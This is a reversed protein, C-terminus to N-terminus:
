APAVVARLGRLTLQARSTPTVRLSLLRVPSQNLLALESQRLTVPGPCPLSVSQLGRRLELVPPEPAESPPGHLRLPLWGAAGPTWPGGSTRSAIGGLEPNANPEFAWSLEGDTVVIVLWVRSTDFTPAPSLPVSVWRTDLGPDTSEVRLPWIASAVGSPRGLVDPHLEVRGEVLATLPRLALDLETVAGRLGTLAQAQATNTDIARGRRLSTVARPMDLLTPRPGPGLATTLTLETLVGDEGLELVRSVAGDTPDLEQVWVPDEATLTATADDDSDNTRRQLATHVRVFDLTASILKVRGPRSAILALSPAEGARLRRNIAEVWGPDSLTVQEDARTPGVKLGYTGGDARLALSEPQDSLRLHLEALRAGSPEGDSLLEIKARSALLSPLSHAEGSALEAEGSPFWPGGVSLSLRCDRRPAATGYSDPTSAGSAWDEDATVWELLEEDGFIEKDVEMEAVEAGRAAMKHDLEDALASDEREIPTNKRASALKVAVGRLARLESWDATLWETAVADDGSELALTFGSPQAVSAVASRRSEGLWSLTLDASTVKLVVTASRLEYGEAGELRLTAGKPGVSIWGSSDADPALLRPGSTSM